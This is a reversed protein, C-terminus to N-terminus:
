PRNIHRRSSNSLAGGWLEKHVNPYRKKRLWRGPVGKLSNVLMLFACHRGNQLDNDNSM